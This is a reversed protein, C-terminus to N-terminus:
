SWSKGTAPRKALAIPTIQTMQSGTFFALTMQTIQPKRFFILTIQTMQPRRFFPWRDDTNDVAHSLLDANIQTM